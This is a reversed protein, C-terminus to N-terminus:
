FVLAAAFSPRHRKGASGTAVSWRAIPSAVGARHCLAPESRELLILRAPSLRLIQRCARLWDTCGPSWVVADRIGPGLSKPDAPIMAGSCIKLRSPSCPILAQVAPLSTMLRLCRFCPLALASSIMLSGAANAALCLHIAPVQDISVEMERLVQATSDGGWQHIADILRITMSRSSGTTVPWVFLLRWSPGAEGAGYIAVRLQQKCQQSSRLNLLLDRLAFRVAGTCGTLLLWLLIWSSRPPMPLHLMVGLAALFM